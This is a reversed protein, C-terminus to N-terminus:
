SWEEDVNDQQFGTPNRSKMGSVIKEILKKAVKRGEVEAGYDKGTITDVDSVIGIIKNLLAILSLGDTTNGLRRLLKSEIENFEIM